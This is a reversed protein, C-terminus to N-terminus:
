LQFNTCKSLYKGIKGSGLRQNGGSWKMEILEAKKSEVNLQHWLTNIKKQSIQSLMISELKIWTSFQLIEKKMTSYYHRTYTDMWSNISVCMCLPPKWTQSHYIISCNVHFYLYWKPSGAKMEKSIYESTPNRSALISTAYYFFYAMWEM